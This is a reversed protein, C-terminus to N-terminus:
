RPMFVPAHLSRARLIRDPVMSPITGPPLSRLFSSRLGSAVGFLGHPEERIDADVVDRGQLQSVAAPHWSCVAGFRSALLSPVFAIGIAAVVIIRALVVTCALRNELRLSRFIRKRKCLRCIYGFTSM